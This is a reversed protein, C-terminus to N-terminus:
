TEWIQTERSNGPMFLSSDLLDIAWSFRYESFFHLDLVYSLVILRLRTSLSDGLLASSGSQM